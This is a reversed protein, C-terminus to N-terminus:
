RNHAKEPTTQAFGIPAELRMVIANEPPSQYYQKRVAMKQFGQKEYLKRAALNSERVELFYIGGREVEAQLLREGLGQRRYPLDVAVNLIEREGAADSTPLFVHRSVLFGAIVEDVCVVLCDYSLFSKEDWHPQAFCRREISFLAPTDEPQAQRITVEPPPM